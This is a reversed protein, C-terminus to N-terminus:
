SSSAWRIVSVSSRIQRERDSNDSADGGDELTSHTQGHNSSRDALAVRLPKGPHGNNGRGGRQEDRLLRSNHPSSDPALARAVGSSSGGPRRRGRGGGPAGEAGDSTRVGTEAAALADSGPKCLSAGTANQTSHGKRLGDAAHTKVVKAGGSRSAISAGTGAGAAPTQGRGDEAHFADDHRLVSSTRRSHGPSLGRDRSQATGTKKRAGHLVQLGLEVINQLLERADEWNLRPRSSSSATTTRAALEDLVGLYKQACDDIRGLLQQAAATNRRIEALDLSELGPKPSSKGDAIAIAAGIATQVDVDGARPETRSGQLLDDLAATLLRAEKLVGKLAREAELM